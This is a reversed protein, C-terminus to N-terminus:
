KQRRVPKQNRLEHQEVADMLTRVKEARFEDVWWAEGLRRSIGTRSPQDPATSPALEVKLARLMQLISREWEQALNGEMPGRIDLPDWGNKKHTALRIEPENSIGVQLMEWNQHELLYVWAPESINFGRNACAPCGTGSVRSGVVAKWEHGQSCRWLAKRGTGWRFTRPDYGKDIAMEAALNPHTTALDNFGSVIQKGACVACSRQQKSISALRPTVEQGCEVHISRWSYNYGRYPELPLFGAARMIEVAENQPKRSADNRSRLSCPTCARGRPFAKGLQVDNESECEQCVAKWPEFAGKYLGTPTMGLMRMREEAQEQTLMRSRGLDEFVCAECGQAPSTPNKGMRVNISSLSISTEDGCLRCISRWKKTQGPYEDIPDLGARKMIKAAADEPTRKKMGRRARGCKICGLNGALVTEMTTTTEGGCRMCKCRWAHKSGPYPELPELYQERMWAAADDPDKRRAFASKEKGCEVCGGQGVKINEYKPTVERGCQVHLLRWKAKSGRYTELPEYGQRRVFTAAEQPDTRKADTRRKIGCVRCGDGRGQVKAWKALFESGCVVCRVRWPVAAGPYPELPELGRQRMEEAVTDGDLRRNSARNIKACHNCGGGRKNVDAVRTEGENGCKTCRFQWPVIWGPYPLLPQYGHSLMIQEAEASTRKRAMHVTNGNPTESRTGTLWFLRGFAIRHPRDRQCPSGHAQM